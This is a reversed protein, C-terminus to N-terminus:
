STVSILFKSKGKMLSGSGTSGDPNSYYAGKMIVYNKQVKFNSSDACYAGKKTIKKVKASSTISSVLLSSVLLAMLLLAVRIHKKYM